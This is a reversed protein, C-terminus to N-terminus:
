VDVELEVNPVVHWCLDPEADAGVGPRLPVTRPGQSALWSALPAAVKGQGVADLLYGLRQVDPLRM